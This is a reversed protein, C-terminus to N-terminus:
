ARRRRRLLALGGVGLLALSAPEPVPTLGQATAVEGDIMNYDGVAGPPLTSQFFFRISDDENFFNEVSNGADDTTPVNFALVGADSLSIIFSDEAPLTSGADNVDSFSYGATGNFGRLQFGGTNFESVFEQESEVTQVFTFTGDSQFVESTLNGVDTTSGTEQDPPTLFDTPGSSAVQNSTDVDGLATPEIIEAAGAPGAALMLGMAALALTTFRTRHTM